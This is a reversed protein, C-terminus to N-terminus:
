RGGKVVFWVVGAAVLVAVILGAMRLNSKEEATLRFEGWNAVLFGTAIFPLLPIGPLKPALLFGTLATATPLLIGWYSRRLRFGFRMAAAFFMAIFIFDGLGMTGAFALGMHGTPGTASGPQPIAVSLKQVLKPAEQLAQGTPGAFVTYLDALAAVICVPLLINRDRIIRSLLKGAAVCAMMFALNVAPSLYVRAHQLKEAFDGLVYWLGLFVALGAAEHWARTTVRAMALMVAMALAAFLLTALLSGAVPPLGPILPTVVLLIYCAFLLLAAWEGARPPSSRRQPEPCSQSDETEPATM